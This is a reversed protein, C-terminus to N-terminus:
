EDPGLLDEFPSDSAPAGVHRAGAAPPVHRPLRDQGNPLQPTPAQAGQVATPDLGLTLTTIAGVQKIFNEQDLTPNLARYNKAIEVVKARHEKLGPWASFFKDEREKVAHGMMSHHEIAAPLMGSITNTAATIADMYVKAMLKPVADVLKRMGDVPDPENLIGEVVNKDLAYYSTALENESRERWDTYVKLPDVAAAPATATPAAPATAEAAPAAVTGAAEEPTTTPPTTPPTVPPTTPPTTPAVEAPKGALADQLKKDEELEAPSATEGTEADFLGSDIIDEPDFGDDAPPDEGPTIASPEAAVEPENSDEPPSSAPNEPSRLLTWNRM